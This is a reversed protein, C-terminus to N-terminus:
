ALQARNLNWNLFVEVADAVTRARVSAFLDFSHQTHPLEIYVVPSRSVGRLRAAIVRTDTAPVATDNSGHLILMPPANAAALLQPSSSPDASRPGLYGYLVIVGAVGTEISEFEPQLAVANRTLAASVALHGGASCGLLYIQTPDAGLETAHERTWAIMRKVDVLPNPHRGAARLRYNASLCLWGHASLRNLMAVSEHSKGGSVFGGGHLHILVPRADKTGPGRYLDFTHARDPGYRQGRVREFNNTRRQFPVLIGRLWPTPALRALGSSGTTSRRWQSGLNADLGAELVGRVGRARVQLWLFGVVTLFILVSAALGWLVGSPRDSFLLSVAFVVLLFLPIENFTMTLVFAVFRLPGRRIPPRVAALVVLLWIAATLVM